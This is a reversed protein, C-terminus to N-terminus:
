IHECHGTNQATCWCLWCLAIVYLLLMLVRGTCYLLIHTRYLKRQANCHHRRSTRAPFGCFGIKNKANMQASIADRFHVWRWVLEPSARRKGSTITARARASLSSLAVNVFRNLNDGRERWWRTHHTHTHTMHTTHSFSAIDIVDCYFTHTDPTPCLFFCICYLQSPWWVFVARELQAEECMDVPSIAGTQCKHTTTTTANMNMKINDGCIYTRVCRATRQASADIERHARGPSGPGNRMARM